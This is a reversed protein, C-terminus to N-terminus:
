LYLIYADTSDSAIEELEQIIAPIEKNPMRETDSPGLLEESEEDKRKEGVKLTLLMNRVPSKPRVLFQSYLRLFKCKLSQCGTLAFSAREYEKCDFYAKGLSYKPLDGKELAQEVVSLASDFESSAEDTWQM